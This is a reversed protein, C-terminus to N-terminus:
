LSRLFADVELADRTTTWSADACPALLARAAPQEGRGALLRALSLAARLQLARSGQALATDQARRLCREAEEPGNPMGDRALLLEGRLRHLEADMWHEGGEAMAFGDAVMALGAEVAGVRLQAAALWGLFMPRFLRVHIAELGAIGAQIAAIGEPLREREADAKGALITGVAQWLPLDHEAALRRVEEAVPVIAAGDRMLGRLFGGNFSLALCLTNMHALSRAHGVAREGFALAEAIRGLHWATLSLYSACAM